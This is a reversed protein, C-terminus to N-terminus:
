IRFTVRHQEDAVLEPDLVELRSVRVPETFLGHKPLGDPTPELSVVPRPRVARRLRRLVM